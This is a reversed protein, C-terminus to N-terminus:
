WSHECIFGIRCSRCWSKCNSLDKNRIDIPDLMFRDIPKFEGCHPCQKREAYALVELEHTSLEVWTRDTLINNLDDRDGVAVIFITRDNINHTQAFVAKMPRSLSDQYADIPNDWVITAGINHLKM